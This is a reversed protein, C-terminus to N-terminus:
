VATASPGGREEARRDHHCRQLPWRCSAGEPQRVVIRCNEQNGCSWVRQPCCDGMAEIRLHSVGFQGSVGGALGTRPTMRLARDRAPRPSTKPYPSPMLPRAWSAREPVLWSHSAIRGVAHQNGALYVARSAPDPPLYVPRRAAVRVRLVRISRTLGIREAIVTAPMDPWARLLERIRPEVQDVISRCSAREYRPPGDARVASPVTNRSV